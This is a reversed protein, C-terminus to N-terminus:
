LLVGVMIITHKNIRFASLNYCLGVIDTNAEFAKFVYNLFGKVPEKQYKKAGFVNKWHILDAVNGSNPCIHNLTLFM